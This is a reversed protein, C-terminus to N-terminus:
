EAFFKARDEADLERHWEQNKRREDPSKRVSQDLPLESSDIGTGDCHHPESAGHQDKKGKRFNRWIGRRFEHRSAIIPATCNPM